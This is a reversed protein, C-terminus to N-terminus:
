ASGRQQPRRIEGFEAEYKTMEENLTRIVDFVLAVPIKVRSVVRCPVEYGAMPDGAERPRVPGTSAFDLTFEYASHWAALVNAYVGGELDSPLDIAFHLPQQIPAGNGPADSTESM